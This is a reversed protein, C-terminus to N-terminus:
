VNAGGVILQGPVGGLEDGVTRHGTIQALGVGTSAGSGGIRVLQNWSRGIVGSLNKFQDLRKKRFHKSHSNSGSHSREAFDNTVIVALTRRFVRNYARSICHRPGCIENV